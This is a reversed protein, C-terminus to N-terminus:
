EFECNALAANLERAAALMNDSIDLGTCRGFYASLARTLRGVGCGFDLVSERSCPFGLRAASAMISDIKVRGTAFFEEPTWRGFRKDSFTLVAWLPDLKGLEEWDRHHGALASSPIPNDPM